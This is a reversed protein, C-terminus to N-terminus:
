WGLRPSRKGYGSVRDVPETSPEFFEESSMQAINPVSTKLENYMATAENQAYAHVFVNCGSGELIKLSKLIAEIVHSKPNNFAGAGLLTYHLNIVPNNYGIMAFGKAVLACARYAESIVHKSIDDYKKDYHYGQFSLASCFVQLAFTGDLETPQVLYRIRDSDQTGNKWRSLQEALQQESYLAPEFYGFEGCGPLFSPQIERIPKNGLERDRVALAIPFGLSARPGQTRDYLYDEMPSYYPGTAELFNFQSAVMQVSMNAYKSKGFMMADVGKVIYLKTPRNMPYAEVGALDACTISKPLRFPEAIRAIRSCFEPTGVNANFDFAGRLEYAANRDVDLKPLREKFIMDDFVQRTTTMVDVQGAPSRGSVQLNTPSSSRKPSVRSATAPAPAPVVAAVTAKPSSSRANRRLDMPVFREHRQAPHEPVVAAVAAKPSSSRANRRLDMPVFRENLNSQATPKPSSSRASAAPFPKQLSEPVSKMGSADAWDRYLGYHQYPANPRQSSPVSSTAPVPASTPSASRRPSYRQATAKQFAAARVMNAHNDTNSDAVRAVGARMKQTKLIELYALQVDISQNAVKKMEEAWEGWSQPAPVPASTPATRTSPAGSPLTCFLGSGPQKCKKAAHGSSIWGQKSRDGPVAIRPLCAHLELQFLDTQYKSPINWGEPFGFFGHKALLGAIEAYSIRGAEAHDNIYGVLYGDSRVEVNRNVPVAACAEGTGVANGQLVTGVMDMCAVYILALASLIDNEPSQINKATVISRAGITWWKPREAPNKFSALIDAGAAITFGEGVTVPKSHFM